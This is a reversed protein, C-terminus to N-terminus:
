LGSEVDGSDYVRVVIEYDPSRPLLQFEFWWCDKGTLGTGRSVELVYGRSLDTGRSEVSAMAKKLADQIAIGPQREWPRYMAPGTDTHEDAIHACAALLLLPFCLLVHRLAQTSVRLHAIAASGSRGFQGVSAARRWESM